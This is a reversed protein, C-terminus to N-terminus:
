RVCIDGPPCLIRPLSRGIGGFAGLPVRGRNRDHRLLLPRGPGDPRHVTRDGLLAHARSVAAASRTDSGRCSSSPSEGRRTPWVMYPTYLLPLDRARVGRQENAYDDLTHDGAKSPGAPISTAATLPRSAGTRARASKEIPWSTTARRRVASATEVVGTKSDLHFVARDRALRTPGQDIVVHGELTATKTPFDVRAKDAAIKVDQYEIRVEESGEWFVDKEYRVPSKTYLRVEGGKQPAQFKIQFSSTQRFRSEFPDASYSQQGFATAAIVV